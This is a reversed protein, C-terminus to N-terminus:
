LDKGLGRLLDGLTTQAKEFWVVKRGVRVGLGSKDWLNHESKIEIWFLEKIFDSKDRLEELQIRLQKSEDSSLREFKMEIIKEALSKTTQLMLTFLRVADESMDGVVHDEPELEADPEYFDRQDLSKLEIELLELFTGM